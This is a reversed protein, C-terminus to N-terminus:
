SSQACVFVHDEAALRALEIDPRDYHKGTPGSETAPLGQAEAPAVHAEAFAKDVDHPLFAAPLMRAADPYGM